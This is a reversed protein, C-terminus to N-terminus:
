YKEFFQNTTRDRKEIEINFQWKVFYLQAIFMYAKLVRDNGANIDNSTQVVMSAIKLMFKIQM